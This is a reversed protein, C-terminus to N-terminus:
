IYKSYEIIWKFDDIDIINVDFYCGSKKSVLSQMIYKM